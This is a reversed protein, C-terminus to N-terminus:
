RGDREALVIRHEGAPLDVPGATHEAGNVQRVAFDEPTVFQATAGRPVTVSHVVQNADWEWRSRLQGLPGDYAGEVWDLESTYSAAIAVNSTWVGDAPRFGLLDEYLYIGVAGLACHNFSNMEATSLSGDPRIGDWKEWVTTGGSRTMYLWSPMEDRLLLSTAFERHGNRALAGLLHEVGHIGTTVYGRQEVLQRLHAAMDRAEAGDVLGYGIAQAYVTQTAGTITLDSRLFETRYTDRVREAEDAWRKADQDRGLRALIESLQVCTRYTHATGVVPRPATSFAGTYAYGPHLEADDREPLSLWDAFDAGVANVRLGNPNHRFVHEAFKIMPPAHREAAALDGYREVLLHVLRVYGDAWGPAGPRGDAPPVAPVYSRIEGDPGQDDAADTAFKDIFAATDFYFTATPAIVGADGLWGHREDRQPCDTAVELFNDRITWEIADAFSNVREDSCRFTGIRDHGAEISIATITTEPDIKTMGFPDLSPLGWVEAYRFGHSTFSPELTRVGDAEDVFTDEQFAGRLNDRWVLEDPTLIEGHRVIVETRPLLPSTVRTWGVLNQGFDFVMPGRAHERVLRGEHERYSRISDHPQAVVHTDIQAGTTVPTWAADDFSPERWGTPEQRLDVIEGRLLDSSLIAGSKTTWRGDTACLTTPQGADDIHDLQALLAPQTGYFGPQRLLGLRGAYWGKALTVALVNEGERLLGDCDFTQHHVRVRYDTWGPRLLDDSTLEVGNLWVRYLGLATIYLRNRGSADSVNFSRRLYPVPDYSERAFPHAPAQVWQSSWQSEDALGLEFVDSASASGPSSVTWTYHGRSSLVDEPVTVWPRTSTAAWIQNGSPDQVAVTHAATSAPAWSLHTPRVPLGLPRHRHGARLRTPIAHDAM